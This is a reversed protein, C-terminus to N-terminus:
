LQVIAPNDDCHPAFVVVVRAVFPYLAAAVGAGGAAAAAQATFSALPIGGSRRCGYTKLPTILNTLPENLPHM